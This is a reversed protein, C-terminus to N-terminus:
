HCAGKNSTCWVCHADVVGNGDILSRAEQTISGCVVVGERSLHHFQNGSSSLNSVIDAYSDLSLSFLAALTFDPATPDMAKGLEDRLREWHRERLAPNKLDQILPMMVKFQEVKEKLAVWVELHKIERGLKM